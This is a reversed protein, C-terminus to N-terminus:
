SLYRDATLLRTPGLIILATSTVDLQPHSVACAIKSVPKGGRERIHHSALDFSTVFATTTMTMPALPTLESRLWRRLLASTAPAHGTAEPTLVVGLQVTSIATSPSASQKHQSM